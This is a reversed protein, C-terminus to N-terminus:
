QPIAAPAAKEENKMNPSQAIADTNSVSFPVSKTITKDQGYVLTLIAEYDGAPLRGSWPISLSKHEGPMFRKIEGKAKAVVHHDKDLIVLAPRPFVHTNSQNSLQVELNFTADASPPTVKVDSLTVSYTETKEAALLLLTGLRINTYLAKRGERAPETLEPRSELFAVSYFSGEAKLPPTIILRIKASGNAPVIVQPPVFEVWNSASQAFSGPPGFVNKNQEDYWFDMALGRMPVPASNGNTVQLEIVFPEGPKFEQVVM